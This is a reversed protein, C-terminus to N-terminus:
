PGDMGVFGVVQSALSGAPYSRRSEELIGVGPLELARVREGIAPDLRRALYVFSGPGSLASSIEDAAVRLLPALLRASGASDTVQRPDAYVSVAPLSMALEAGNRDVITGRTPPIVIRRVRQDRALAAYDDSDRLQLTILRAAVSAFCVALILFLSGLRRAPPLAAARTSM